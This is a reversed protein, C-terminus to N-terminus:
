LNMKIVTVSKKLYPILICECKYLVIHIYVIIKVEKFKHTGM